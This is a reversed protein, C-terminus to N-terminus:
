GKLVKTYLDLYQEAIKEWSFKNQVAKYGQTGLDSLKKQDNILNDIISVSSYDITSYGNRKNTPLIIGGDTWKQIELSNGVDTAAFALKAANSEFLVLPSCEINSPFLFLDSQKFANITINRSVNAVITKKNKNVFNFILSNTKCKVFCKKSYTNGILLLAIKQTKLKEFIKLLDSHGKLGTHSGVHLIIKWDDPIQFFKKINIYKSNNFEHVDAGNPIVNIDQANYKRAFNIDRYDESLFVNANYNKIWSRMKNFYDAYESHELASFGTPVFIKKGPLDKLIPLCLDTAWQQAAFNVIIDFNSSKLFNIYQNIEGKIGRVLNGEIKFDKIKYSNFQSISRQSHFSTAITIDIGKQSLHHSLQKVVEQMGGKSPEFQEVTHLVKM